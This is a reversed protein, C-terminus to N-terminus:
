GVDELRTKPETNVEDEWCGANLWTTPHKWEPRFEGNANKRWDKQKEISNLIINLLPLQNQKKLVQWKKFASQKANKNPYEFWFKEFDVSYKIPKPKPSPSPSPANCETHPECAGQMGNADPKNGWRVLAAQRARESREPAHCVWPQHEVWDHLKYGNSNKDLWKCDVLANVFKDADEEWGAELAIDIEDMGKLNGDPHNQATSIWLDLLYDTADPGLIMKLRRRKRHDRFSFKVRIDM